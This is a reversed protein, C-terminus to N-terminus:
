PTASKSWDGGDRCAGRYFIVTERQMAGVDPGGGPGTPSFLESVFCPDIRDANDNLCQLAKATALDYCVGRPATTGGKRRERNVCEQFESTKGDFSSGPTTDCDSCVAADCAFMC